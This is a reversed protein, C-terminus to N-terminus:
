SPHSDLIFGRREIYAKLPLMDMNEGAWFTGSTKEPMVTNPWQCVGLVDRCSIQQEHGPKSEICNLKFPKSQSDLALASWRGAGLQSSWGAQAGPDDNMPHTIWLEANSLNHIMIIRPKTTSLKVIGGDVVIPECGDPFIEQANVIWSFFFTTCFFLFKM